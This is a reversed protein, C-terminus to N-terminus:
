EEQGQEPILPVVEKVQLYPSSTNLVSIKYCLIASSKGEGEMKHPVLQLKVDNASQQLFSISATCVLKLLVKSEM